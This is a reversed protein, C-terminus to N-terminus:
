RRETAKGQAGKREKYSYIGWGWRRKVKTWLEYNEGGAAKRNLRMRVMTRNRRKNLAVTEGDRKEWGEAQDLGQNWRGEDTGKGKKRDKEKKEERSDKIADSTM